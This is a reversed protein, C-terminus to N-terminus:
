TRQKALNQAIKKVSDRISAVEKKGKEYPDSITVFEVKEHILLFDPCEDKQCLVVIKKAQALMDRTLQKVKQKSIDVGDAQMAAVIEPAPKGKYKERFDDIGASIASKGGTLANYYGEAMQSRGVNASCVFLVEFQKM